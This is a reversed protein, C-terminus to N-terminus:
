PHPGPSGRSVQLAHQSVVQLAHQSVVVGGETVLIVSVHLFMIKGWSRQPRYNLLTWNDFGSEHICCFLSSAWVTHPLCLGLNLTWWYCYSHAITHILHSPLWALQWSTNCWILVLSDMTCLCCFCALLIDIRAKFGLPSTDLIEFCHNWHSWLLVLTRWFKLPLYKSVLNLNDKIYDEEEQSDITLMKQGLDECAAKATQFNAPGYPGTIKGM